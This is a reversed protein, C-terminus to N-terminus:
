RKILIVKEEDGLSQEEAVEDYEADFEDEYDKRNLKATLKNYWTEKKEVFLDKLSAAFDTINIYQGSPLTTKVTGLKVFEDSADKGYVRKLDFAGIKNEKLLKVIACERLSKKVNSIAKRTVSYVNPYGKVAFKRGKNEKYYNELATSIDKKNLYVGNSIEVEEENELETQESYEAADSNRTSILKGNSDLKITRLKKSSDIIDSFMNKLLDGFNESIEVKDVIKPEEVIESEEIATEVENESETQELEDETQLTTEEKANESQMEEFVSELVSKSEEVVKETEAHRRDYEEKEWSTMTQMIASGEEKTLEAMNLYESVKKLKNELTYMVEILKNSEEFLARRGDGNIPRRQEDYVTEYKTIKLNTTDFKLKAEQLALELQSKASYLNKRLEEKIEAMERLDVRYFKNFHDTENKILEDIQILRDELEKEHDFYEKELDKRVMAGYGNYFDRNELIANEIYQAIEKEKNDRLRELRLNIFTKEQDYKSVIESRNELEKKKDFYPQMIEELNM